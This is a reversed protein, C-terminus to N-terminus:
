QTYNIPDREIVQRGVYPYVGLLIHLEPDADTLILRSAPEM